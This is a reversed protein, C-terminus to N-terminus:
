GTLLYWQRDQRGVFPGDLQTVRIHVSFSYM